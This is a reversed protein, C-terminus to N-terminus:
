SYIDKELHLLLLLLPHLNLPDFDFDRSWDLLELAWSQDMQYGAVFSGLLAQLFNVVQVFDPDIQNPDLLASEDCPVISM